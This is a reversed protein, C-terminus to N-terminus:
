LNSVEKMQEGAIEIAQESDHAGIHYVSIFNPMLRKSSKPPESLQLCFAVGGDEFLGVRFIRQESSIWENVVWTQIMSTCKNCYRKQYAEALAFYDFIACIHYDSYQGDTVIFIKM